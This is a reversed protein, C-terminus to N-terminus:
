LASTWNSLSARYLMLSHRILIVLQQAPNALSRSPSRRLLIVKGCHGSGFIKKLKSSRHPALVPSRRVELTLLTILPSLSFVLSNVM